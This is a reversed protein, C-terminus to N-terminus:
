FTSIKMSFFDKSIKKHINKMGLLFIKVLIQSYVVYSTWYKKIMKKHKQSCVLFGFM